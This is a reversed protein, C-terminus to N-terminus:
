ENEAELERMQEEMIKRAREDRLYEEKSEIGAIVELLREIRKLSIYIDTLSVTEIM